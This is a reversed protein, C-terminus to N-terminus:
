GLLIRHRLLAFGARGYMQRKIMKTNVGETRGNHFPLTLAATVANIDLDLGRAFSHLVPLDVERAAAIWRQLGAQNEPAPAFRGAFSSILATLATMEPCASELRACTEAQGGTLRDPRTLLIRAARRPSLHPRDSDLRGQNIYRVLLAGATVHVPFSRRSAFDGGRSLLQLPESLLAAEEPHRVLYSALADSIDLHGIAM